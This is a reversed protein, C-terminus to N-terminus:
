SSVKNRTRKRQYYYLIGGSALMLLGILVATYMMTATNPLTGRLIGSGDQNPDSGGPLLEVTEAMKTQLQELLKVKISYLTNVLTSRKVQSLGTKSHVTIQKPIVTKRVISM